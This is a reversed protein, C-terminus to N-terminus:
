RNTSVLIIEEFSPSSHQRQHVNSISQMSICMHYNLGRIRQARPLIVLVVIPM